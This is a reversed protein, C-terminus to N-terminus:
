EGNVCPVAQCFKGSPFWMDGPPACGKRQRQRAYEKASVPNQTWEIVQM